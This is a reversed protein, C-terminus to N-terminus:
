FKALNDNLLSEVTFNAPGSSIQVRTVFECGHLMFLASMKPWEYSLLTLIRVASHKSFVM